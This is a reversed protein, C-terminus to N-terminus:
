PVSGLREGTRSSRATSLQPRRRDATPAAPRDAYTSVPRKPQVPSYSGVGWSGRLFRAARAVDMVRFPRHPLPESVCRINGRPTAPSERDCRHRRRRPQARRVTPRTPRDIRSLSVGIVVAVALREPMVMSRVAAPTTAAPAMMVPTPALAPRAEAATEAPRPTRGCTATAVRSESGFSQCARHIDTGLGCNSANSGRCLYARIIPRPDTDVLLSM